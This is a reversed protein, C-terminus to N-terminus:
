RASTRRILEVAAALLKEVEASCFRRSERPKLRIHPCAATIPSAYPPQDAANAQRVGSTPVRTPDSPQPPRCHALVGEQSRTLAQHIWAGGPLVDSVDGHDLGRRLFAAFCMEGHALAHGARAHMQDDIQVSRFAEVVDIEDLRRQAAAHIRRLGRQQVDMHVVELRIAHRAHRHEGLAV